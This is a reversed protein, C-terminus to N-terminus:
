VALDVQHLLGTSGKENIFLGSRRIAGQLENDQDKLQFPTYISDLYLAGVGLDNLSTLKQEGNESVQWLSLQEFVSDQEDIFRNGDEDYKSLDDFGNGSFVGFLEGGHDIAGNSNQDLALFGNNGSLFHLNEKEGDADLDFAFTNNNLRVNGDFNLALPDVLQSETIELSMYREANFERSLTQSIDFSIETGDKTKVTGQGTFESVEKEMISEYRTLKLIEISDQVGVSDDNNNRAVKDQWYERVVSLDLEQGTLTEVVNKLMYTKADLGQMEAEESKLGVGKNQNDQVFLSSMLSSNHERLQLRIADTIPVVDAMSPTSSDQNDVDVWDATSSNPISETRRQITEVVEHKEEIAHTSSLSIDSAVIHM